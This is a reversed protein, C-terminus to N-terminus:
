GTARVIEDSLAGSPEIRQRSLALRRQAFREVLLIAAFGVLVGIVTDSLYHFRGWFTAVVLTFVFPALWIALRPQTRRAYFLVVLAVATHSSPM